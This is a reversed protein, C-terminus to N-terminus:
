VAGLPYVASDLACETYNSDSDIQLMFGACIPPQQDKGYPLFLIKKDDTQSEHVEGNLQSFKALIGLSCREQEKEPLSM